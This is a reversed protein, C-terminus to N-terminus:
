APDVDLIEESELYAPTRLRSGSHTSVLFYPRISRRGALGSTAIVAWSIRLKWPPTRSSLQLVTHAFSHEGESCVMPVQMGFLGILSYAVM